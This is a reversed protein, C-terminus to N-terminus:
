SPLLLHPFEDQVRKSLSVVTRARGAAPPTPPKNVVTPQAVVGNAKSAPAPPKESEVSTTVTPGDEFMCVVDIDGVFETWDEEFSLMRLEMKKVGDGMVDGSLLTTIQNSKFRSGGSGSLASSASVYSSLQDTDLDADSKWLHPTNWYQLAYEYVFKTIENKLTFLVSHRMEVKSLIRIAVGRIVIVIVRDIDASIMAHHLEVIAGNVISNCEDDAISASLQQASYKSEDARVILCPVPQVSKSTSPPPSHLITGNPHQAPRPKSPHMLGLCFTFIWPKEHTSVINGPEFRACNDDQYKKLSDLVDRRRSPDTISELRNWHSDLHQDLRRTSLQWILKALGRQQAESNEVRGMVKIDALLCSERAGLRWRCSNFMDDTTIKFDSYIIVPQSM